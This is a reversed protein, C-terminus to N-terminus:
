CGVLCSKTYFYSEIIVDFLIFQLEPGVIDGNNHM